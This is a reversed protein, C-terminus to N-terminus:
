NLSTLCLLLALLGKLLPARSWMVMKEDVEMGLRLTVVQRVENGKRFSEEDGELAGAKSIATSDSGTVSWGTMEVKLM